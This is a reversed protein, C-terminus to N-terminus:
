VFVVMNKKNVMYEEELLIGRIADYLECAEEISERREHIQEFIFLSDSKMTSTVNIEFYVEENRKKVVLLLSIEMGYRLIDIKESTIYGIHDLTM